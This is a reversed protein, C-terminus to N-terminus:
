GLIRVLRKLARLDREQGSRKERRAEANARAFCRQREVESEARSGLAVLDAVSPRVRQCDRCATFLSERDVLLRKERKGCEGCRFSRGDAWVFVSGGLVFGGPTRDFPISDVFGKESFGREFKLVFFWGENKMKM